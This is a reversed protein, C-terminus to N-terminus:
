DTLDLSDAHLGFEWARAIPSSDEKPVRSQFFMDDNLGIDLDLDFDDTMDIRANKAM